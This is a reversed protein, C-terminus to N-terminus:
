GKRGKRAERILERVGPGSSVHNAQFDALWAIAAQIEERSRSGVPRLEAVPRGHRTIVFRQGQQVRALLKPLHTKAEYAGIEM